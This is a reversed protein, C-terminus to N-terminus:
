FPDNQRFAVAFNLSRLPHTMSEWKSPYPFLLFACPICVLLTLLALINVQMVPIELSAFQWLVIKPILPAMGNMLNFQRSPSRSLKRRTSPKLEFRSLLVIMWHSSLLWHALYHCCPRWIRHFSCLPFKRKYRGSDHGNSMNDTARKQRASKRNQPPICENKKTPM